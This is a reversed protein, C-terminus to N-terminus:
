TSIEELGGARTCYVVSNGQMHRKLAYYMWRDPSCPGSAASKIKPECLRAGIHRWRRFAIIILHRCVCGVKWLVKQWINKKIKNKKLNKYM